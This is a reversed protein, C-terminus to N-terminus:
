SVLQHLLVGCKLAMFALKMTSKANLQIYASKPQMQSKIEMKTNNYGTAVLVCVVQNDLQCMKTM